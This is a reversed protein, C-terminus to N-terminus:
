DTPDHMVPISRTYVGPEVKQPTTKAEGSVPVLLGALLATAAVTLVKNKM